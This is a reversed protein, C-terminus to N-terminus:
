VEEKEETKETTTEEEKEEEESHVQLILKKFLKASDESLNEVDTGVKSLIDLLVNTRGETDFFKNVIAIKRTEVICYGSQFNGKEFRVTYGLEELLGQVKKLNHKTYKM